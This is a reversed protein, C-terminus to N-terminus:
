YKPWEKLDEEFWEEAMQQEELPDAKLCALALRSKKIDLNEIKENVATQIANSRNPFLRSKVLSDLKQLLKSDLTISIRAADM